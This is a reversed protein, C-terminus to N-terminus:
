ETKYTVNVLPSCSVRRQCLVAQYLNLWPIERERERERERENERERRHARRDYVSVKDEFTAM